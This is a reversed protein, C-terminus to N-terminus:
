EISGSIIAWLHATLSKVLIDFEPDEEMDKKIRTSFYDPCVKNAKELLDGGKDDDGIEYWDHALATFVRAVMYDPYLESKIDFHREMELLEEAFILDEKPVDGHLNHGM